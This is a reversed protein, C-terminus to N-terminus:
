VKDKSQWFIIIIFFLPPPAEPHFKWVEPSLVWVREVLDCWLHFFTKPYKAQASRQTRKHTQEPSRCLLRRGNFYVPRRREKNGYHPPIVAHLALAM